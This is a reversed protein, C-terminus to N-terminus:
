NGKIANLYTKLDVDSISSINTKFGNLEMVGIEYAICHIINIFRQQPPVHILATLNMIESFSKHFKTNIEGVNLDPIPLKLSIIGPVPKLQKVVDQVTMNLDVPSGVHLTKVTVPMGEFSDVRTSSNEVGVYVQAISHPIGNFNKIHSNYVYLQPVICVLGEFNLGATDLEHIMLYGTIIKPFDKFSSIGRVAFSYLGDFQVPSYSVPKIFQVVAPGSFHIGDADTFRFDAPSYNMYVDTYKRLFYQAEDVTRAPTQNRILDDVAKVIQQSVKTVMRNSDCYLTDLLKFTGTKDPQSSDVLDIVTQLFNGRATGYVASEAQYLVETPNDINIFPKISVRATPKNINMDSEKVLYAVMTGEAIDRNIFYSNVGGYLNMCSTWGRGTSMGAIDYAHKSFVIYHLVTKKQAQMEQAEPVNNWMDIMLNIKPTADKKLKTTLEDWPQFTGDPNFYGEKGKHRTMTVYPRTRLLSLLYKVDTQIIVMQIYKSIKIKRGYQDYLNGKLIEYGNPLSFTPLGTLEPPATQAQRFSRNTYEGLKTYFDTFEKSFVRDDDRKTDSDWTTEFPIYVRDGRKSSKAGTLQKLSDLIANQRAEIEPNKNINTYQKAVSIELAEKILQVELLRKLNIM